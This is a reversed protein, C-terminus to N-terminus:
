VVEIPGSDVPVDVILSGDGFLLAREKGQLSKSKLSFTFDGEVKPALRKVLDFHSSTSTKGLSSSLKVGRHESLEDVSQPSEARLTLSAFLIVIFVWRFMRENHLM